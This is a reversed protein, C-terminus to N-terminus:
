VYIQSFFVKVSCLNNKGWVTVWYQEGARLRSLAAKMKMVLFVSITIILGCFSTQNDQFLINKQRSCFLQSFILLFFFYFLIFSCFFLAAFDGKPFYSTAYFHSTFWTYWGNNYVLGAGMNLVKLPSRTWDEWCNAFNTLSKPKNTQTDIIQFFNRAIRFIYM